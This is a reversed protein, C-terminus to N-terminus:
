PYVTSRLTAIVLDHFRLQIVAHVVMWPIRSMKATAPIVPKCHVISCTRCGVHEFEPYWLWLIMLMTSEIMVILMAWVILLQQQIYTYAYIYENIHKCLSSHNHFIGVSGHSALLWCPGAAVLAGRPCGALPRSLAEHEPSAFRSMAKSGPAPTPLGVGQSLQDQHQSVWVNPPENIPENIILRISLQDHFDISLRISLQHNVRPWNHDNSSEHFTSPNTSPQM